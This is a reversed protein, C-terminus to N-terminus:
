KTTSARNITRTTTIGVQQFADRTLTYHRKKRKYGEKPKFNIKDLIVIDSGIRKQNSNAHFIKEMSRSKM